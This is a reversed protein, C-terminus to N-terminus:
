GGWEPIEPTSATALHLTRWLIATSLLSWTEPHSESMGHSPHEFSLIGRADCSSLGKKVYGVFPLLDSQHPWLPTLRSRITRLRSFRSLAEDLARWMSSGSWADNELELSFPRREPLCYAFEIESLYSSAVDAFMSPIVISM